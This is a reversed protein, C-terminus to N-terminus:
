RRRPRTPRRDNPRAGIKGPQGGYTGIPRRRGFLIEGDMGPM